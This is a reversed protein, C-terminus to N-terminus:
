RLGTLNTKHHVIQEPLFHRHEDVTGPGCAMVRHPEVCIIQRATRVHVAQLDPLLDCGARHRRDLLATPQKEGPHEGPQVKGNFSSDDASTTSFRGMDCSSANPPYKGFPLTTCTSRKTHIRAIGIFALSGPKIFSRPMGKCPNFVGETNARLCQPSSTGRRFRPQM